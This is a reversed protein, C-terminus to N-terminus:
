RPPAVELDYDIELRETPTQQVMRHLILYGGRERYELETTVRAGRYTRLQRSIVAYGGVEDVVYEVELLRDVGDEETVVRQERLWTGDRLFWQSFRAGLGEIRPRFDLRVEKGERQLTVVYDEAVLSPQTSACLLMTEAVKVLYPHDPQLPQGDVILQGEGTHLNRVVSFVHRVPPNERPTLRVTATGSLSVGGAATLTYMRQDVVGKLFGIAAPDSPTEDRQPVTGQIPPAAENGAEQLASPAAGIVGALVSVILPLVSFATM